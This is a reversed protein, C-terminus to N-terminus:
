LRRRERVQCIVEDRGHIVREFLPTAIHQHACEAACLLASSLVLHTGASRQHQLAAAYLTRQHLHAALRAPFSLVAANHEPQ